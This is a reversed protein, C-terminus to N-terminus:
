NRWFCNLCPIFFFGYQRYLYFAKTSKDNKDFYSKISNYILKVTNSRKLANVSDMMYTKILKVFDKETHFTEQYLKLFHEVSQLQVKTKERRFSDGGTSVYGFYEFERGTLWNNFKWLNRSYNDATGNRFKPDFNKYRSGKHQNIFYQVTELRCFDEYSIPLGAEQATADRLVGIKRGLTLAHYIAGSAAKHTEKFTFHSQNENICDKPNIKQGKQFSSLVRAYQPRIKIPYSKAPDFEEVVLLYKKM